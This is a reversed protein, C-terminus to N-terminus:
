QPMPNAYGFWGNRVIAGCPCVHDMTAISKRAYNPLLGYVVHVRKLDDLNGFMNIMSYSIAIIPFFDCPLAEPSGFFSTLKGPMLTIHQGNNVDVGGINLKVQCPARGDDDLYFGIIVDGHREVIGHLANLANVAHLSLRHIILSTSQHSLLLIASEFNDSWDRKDARRALEVYLEQISNM